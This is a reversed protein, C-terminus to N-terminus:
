LFGEVDEVLYESSDFDDVFVFNYMSVEFEFVDEDFFVILAVKETFYSIKSESSKKLHGGVRVASGLVIHGWLYEM